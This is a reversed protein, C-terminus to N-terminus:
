YLSIIIIAITTYLLNMKDYNTTLVAIGLLILPLVLCLCSGSLLTFDIKTQFAFLTLSLVIIFTAGAAFLIQEYSFRQLALPLIMTFSLTFLLLFIYNYPVKRRADTFCLLAIFTLFYCSVSVALFFITNQEAFLLYQNWQMLGYTVLATIVLQMLVICFVKKIFAQRLSKITFILTAVLAEQDSPNEIIEPLSIITSTNNATQPAADPKLDQKFEADNSPMYSGVMGYPPPPENKNEVHITYPGATAM